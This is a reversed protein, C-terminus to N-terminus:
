FYRNLPSDSILTINFKSKKSGLRYDVNLIICKKCKCFLSIPLFIDYPQLLAKVDLTLCSSHGM